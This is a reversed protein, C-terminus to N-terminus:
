PIQITTCSIALDHDGDHIVYQAWYTGTTLGFTSINWEFQATYEDKDKVGPGNKYDKWDADIDPGKKRGSYKDHDPNYDGKIASPFHPTCGATKASCFPKAPPPGSALMTYITPEWYYNGKGDSGTDYDMQDGPSVAGTVPDVTENSSVLPAEEDTVWVRIKGKDALMGPAPDSGILIKDETNYTISSCGFTNGPPITPTITMGLFTYLQLKKQATKAAPTVVIVTNGINNNDLQPLQGGILTYGIAGAILVLIMVFMMGSGVAGRSISTKKRRLKKKSKMFKHYVFLIM